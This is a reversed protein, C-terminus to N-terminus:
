LLKNWASRLNPNSMKIVQWGIRADRILFSRDSEINELRGYRIKAQIWSFIAEEIGTELCVDGAIM